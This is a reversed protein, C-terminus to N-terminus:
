MDGGGWKKIQRCSTGSWPLIKQNLTFLKFIKLRKWFQRFQKQVASYWSFYRNKPTFHIYFSSTKLVNLRPYNFGAFQRFIGGSGTAPWDVCWSLFGDGRVWKLGCWRWELILWWKGWCYLGFDGNGVGLGWITGRITFRLLWAKFDSQGEFKVRWKKVRLWFYGM